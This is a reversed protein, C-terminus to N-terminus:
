QEEQGHVKLFLCAGDFVGRETSLFSGRVALDFAYVTYYIDWAGSLAPTHWHIQSSPTRPQAKGNCRASIHTIPRAFDR